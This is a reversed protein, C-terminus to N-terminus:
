YGKIGAARANDLANVLDRLKKKEKDNPASNITDEIDSQINKLEKDLKKRKKNFIDFIGESLGYKLFVEKLHSKKITKM